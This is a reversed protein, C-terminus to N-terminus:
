VPMLIKLLLGVRALASRLGLDMALSSGVNAHETLGWPSYSEATRQRRLHIAPAIHGIGRVDPDVVRHLEVPIPFSHLLGQGTSTGIL